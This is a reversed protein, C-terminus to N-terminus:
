TELGPWFARLHQSFESTADGEQDLAHLLGSVLTRYFPESDDPAQAGASEAQTALHTAVRFFAHFLYEAEEQPIDGEWVFPNAAEAESSWAALYSEFGAVADAPLWVGPGGPESAVTELVHTAYQVWAHVHESPLPGLRVQVQRVTPSSDLVIDPVPMLRTNMTVTFGKCVSRYM